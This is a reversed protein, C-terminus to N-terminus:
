HSHPPITPGESAQVVVFGDGSFTLQFAEGSGRGVFAGLKVSSKVSTTLHTSWAVAAQVDVFTPADTRLVVPTGHALLAVTGTGSLVTNFFGGTFVSAGEVRKVDWELTSDFALINQGNVTVSDNELHLLHVEDADHAFFVDGRGRCLMLPVGEGTFAKKLFRSLGAGQHEFDVEGQYAVMSGQRALVQGNLRVKLMRGNQLVFSESTEAELNQGFLNSRM